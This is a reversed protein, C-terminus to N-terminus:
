IKYVLKEMSIPRLYAEEKHDSGTSSVLSSNRLVSFGDSVIKDMGGPM